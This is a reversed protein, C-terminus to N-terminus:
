LGARHFLAQRGRRLCDLVNEFFDARSLEDDSDILGYLDCLLGRAGYQAIPLSDAVFIDPVDGSIIETNLVTLGVGDGPSESYQEYDRVEIKVGSNARNFELIDQRLTQSLGM